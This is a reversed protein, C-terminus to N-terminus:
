LAHLRNYSPVYSYEFNLQLMDDLLKSAKAYNLEAADSSFDKCACLLSSFTEDVIDHSRYKSVANASSLKVDNYMCQLEYRANSARNDINVFLKKLQDEQDAKFDSWLESIGSQTARDQLGQAINNFKSALFVLSDPGIVTSNKKVEGAMSASALGASLDEANLTKIETAIVRKLAWIHSRDCVVEEGPLPLSFSNCTPTQTFEITIQAYKQPIKKALRKYLPEKTTYNLNKLMPCFKEGLLEVGKNITLVTENTSQALRRQVEDLAKQFAQQGIINNNHVPLMVVFTLDKSTEDGFESNTVDYLIKATSKGIVPIEFDFAGEIGYSTSKHTTYFEASRKTPVISRTLAQVKELESIQFYLDFFLKQLEENDSDSFDCAGRLMPAVSVAAKLVNLRGTVSPPLWRRETAHKLRKADVKEKKTAHENAIVSLCQNYATLDGKVRSVLTAIAQGSAEDSLHTRCEIVIPFNATKLKRIIKEASGGVASPSCDANILSLHSHYVLTTTYGGTGSAKASIGAKALAKLDASLGATAQVTFEKNAMSAKTVKPVALQVNQPVVGLLKLYFEISTRFNSLVIREHDQMQRRAKAIDKIKPARKYITSSFKSNSDLFQELSRCVLVQALELKGNLSLDISKPLGFAVSGGFNGIRNIRYFNKETGGENVSVGFSLKPELAGSNVNLNLAVEASTGESGMRKEIEVRNEEIIRSALARAVIVEYANKASTVFGLFQNGSLNASAMAEEAAALYSIIQIRKLQLDLTGDTLCIIINGFINMLAPSNLIGKFHSCKRSDDKSMNVLADMVGLLAQDLNDNEFLDLQSGSTGDFSTNDAIKFQHSSIPKLIQKEDLTIRKQLLESDSALYTNLAKRLVTDDQVYDQSQEAQVGVNPSSASIKAPFSFNLVISCLLMISVFNKLYYFLNNAVKKLPKENFNFINKLNECTKEKKKFGENEINLMKIVVFNIIKNIKVYPSNKTLIHLVCYLYDIKLGSGPKRIEM